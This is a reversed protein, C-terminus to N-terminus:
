GRDDPQWNPLLKSSVEVVVKRNKSEIEFRLESDVDLTFEEEKVSDSDM